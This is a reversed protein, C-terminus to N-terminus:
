GAKKLRRTRAYHRRAKASNGCSKMTCWRRSRNRSHDLFLWGCRDAACRRVLRLDDSTLLSAASWAVPWLMRDLEDGEDTFMWSCGDDEVQLRLRGLAQGLFRNLMMAAGPEADHGEVRAVFVQYIAERLARANQLTAQAAVPAARAARRLRRVTAADIIATAYAWELLDGYNALRENAQEGRPWAVTNTFDLCSRGGVWEFRPRLTVQRIM